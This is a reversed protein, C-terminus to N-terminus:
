EKKRRIGKEKRGVKSWGCENEKLKEKLVSYEMRRMLRTEKIRLKEASM